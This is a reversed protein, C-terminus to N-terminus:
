DSLVFAVLTGIIIGAGTLIETMPLAAHGASCPVFLGAALLLMGAVLFVGLMKRGASRGPRDDMRRMRKRGQGTVTVM